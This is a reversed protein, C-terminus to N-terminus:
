KVEKINIIKDNIGPLDPQKPDSTYATLKNDEDVSFVIYGTQKKLTSLKVEVGTIIDALSGDKKPLYEITIIMKRSADLKRNSDAINDLILQHAKEFLDLLAGGNLNLLTVEKYTNKDM